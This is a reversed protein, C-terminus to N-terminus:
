QLCHFVHLFEIPGYICQLVALLWLLCHFCSLVAHFRLLCHLVHLLEMPVLPCHSVGLLWLLCHSVHLLELASSSVVLLWSLCHCVYLLEMSSSSVNLSLWCSYSATLSMCVVHSQLFLSLIGPLIFSLSLCTAAANNLYDLKKFILM